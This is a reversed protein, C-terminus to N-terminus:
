SRGGTFLGGVITVAVGVVISTGYSWTEWGFQSALSGQILMLAWGELLSLAVGIAVFLLFMAFAAM